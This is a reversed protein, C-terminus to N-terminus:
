AGQSLIFGAQAPTAESMCYEVWCAKIDTKSSFDSIYPSKFIM